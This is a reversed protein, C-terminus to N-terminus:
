GCFTHIVRHVQFGVQLPKGVKEAYIDSQNFKSCAMNGMDSLSKDCPVERVESVFDHFDREPALRNAATYLERRAVAAPRAPNGSGWPPM